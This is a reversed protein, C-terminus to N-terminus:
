PVVQWDSRRIVSTFNNQNWNGPKDPLGHFDITVNHEDITILGWNDTHRDPTFQDITYTKTIFCAVGSSFAQHIRESEIPGNKEPNEEFPLFKNRHIDGAVYLTRRGGDGSVGSPKDRFSLEGRLKEWFGAYAQVVEGDSGQSLGVGNAVITIPRQVTQAPDLQKWLWKEQELGLMTANAATPATRYSRGDLMLIRVDPLMDYVDYMEPRGANVAFGMWKDFLARSKKVQEPVTAGCVNNVGCDHDDWIALTSVNPKAILERFAKIKFQEEYCHNLAAFDWSEPIWKKNKDDWTDGWGMYATDGLLLLLNLDPVQDLIQQWAPQEKRYTAYACSVFAIKTTM